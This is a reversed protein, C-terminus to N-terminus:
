GSKKDNKKRRLQNLAEIASQTTTQNEIYGDQPIAQVPWWEQDANRDYIWLTGDNCIASLQDETIRFLRVIKRM